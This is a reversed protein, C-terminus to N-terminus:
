AGGLLLADGRFTTVKWQRYYAFEQLEWRYLETMPGGQLDRYLDFWAEVYLM